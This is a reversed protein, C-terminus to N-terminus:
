SPGCGGTPSNSTTVGVGIAVPQSTFNRYTATVQYFGTYVWVPPSDPTTTTVGNTTTTTTLDFWTCIAVIGTMLGTSNIPVTTPGYAPLSGACPNTPDGSFICGEPTVNWTSNNTVDITKGSHYNATTTMQLTGDAGALNYFTGASPGTATLTLSELYDSTGCNTSLLAIAAVFLAVISIRKM